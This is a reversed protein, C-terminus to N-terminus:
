APARRAATGKPVLWKHWADCQLRSVAELERGTTSEPTRHRHTGPVHKVSRARAMCARGFLGSHGCTAVHPSAPSLRMADDEPTPPGHAETACCMACCMACCVACCMACCVACCM